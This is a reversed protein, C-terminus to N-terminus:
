LFNHSSKLQSGRASIMVSWTDPLNIQEQTLASSSEQVPSNLLWMLRWRTRSHSTKREKKRKKQRSCMWTWCDLLTLTKSCVGGSPILCTWLYFFLVMCVVGSITHDKLSDAARRVKRNISWQRPVNWHLFSGVHLKCQSKWLTSQALHHCCLCTHSSADRSSTWIPKPLSAGIM